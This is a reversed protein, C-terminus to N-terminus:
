LDPWTKNKGSKNSKTLILSNVGIGRLYVGTGKAKENSFLCPCEGGAVASYPGYFHVKQDVATGPTLPKEQVGRNLPLGYLANRVVLFRVDNLCRLDWGLMGVADGLVKQASTGLHASGTIEAVGASGYGFIIDFTAHGRLRFSEGDVVCSVICDTGKSNKPESLLFTPDPDGLAANIAALVRADFCRYRGVVGIGWEYVARRLRPLDERVFVWDFEVVRRRAERAIKILSYIDRYDGPVIPQDRWHTTSSAVPM